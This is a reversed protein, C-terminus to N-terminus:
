SHAHGHALEESTPKRLGVITVKFHLTEGALPHNFDLTVTEEGVTVVRAYLINGEHDKMQLELGPQLDITEPFEEKPVDIIRSQDIEGYADKAQVTIEKTEDIGMGYLEKELGLIINGRGQLFDIPGSDKSSDVVKGDVSLEYAMSIVMDDAVVLPEQENSM